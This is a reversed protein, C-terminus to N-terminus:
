DIEIWDPPWLDKNNVKFLSFNKDSPRLIIKNNKPSLWAGWWNFSSPIVIHHNCNSILFLDLCRKDLNYCFNKDHNVLTIKENFLKYDINTINNSWLFFTPNDIIDKFYNIAKNIYAIQEDTFKSSRITNLTHNYKNKGEVFRNQRLCISVSNSNNLIPFYPSKIFKEYDIFSFEKLILDKIDTFYKETEFYGEFYVNDAFKTSTINNDFQTIKNENKNELYFTKNTSISNIKKLLKRKIYGTTGLFKLNNPAINSSINFNNLGYKSINKKSLYATENDVLLTKNIKKSIGLASAYMFMQNGLENSIRTILNQNNM